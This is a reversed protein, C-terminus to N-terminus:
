SLYQQSGIVVSVMQAFEHEQATEQTGPVLLTLPQAKAPAKSVASYAAVVFGQTRFSCTCPPRVSTQFRPEEMRRPLSAIFWTCLQNVQHSEIGLPLNSGVCLRRNPISFALSKLLPM